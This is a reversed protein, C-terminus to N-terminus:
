LMRTKNNAGKIFENAQEVHLTLYVPIYAEDERFFPFTLDHWCHLHTYYITLIYRILFIFLVRCIYSELLSRVCLRPLMSPLLM